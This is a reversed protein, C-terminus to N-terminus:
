DEERYGWLEFHVIHNTENYSSDFQLYVFKGNAVAVGSNISAATDESAVGASTALDDMEAANAVSVYDDAYKLHLQSAAFETSPNAEFSLKWEVIKIGHPMDDGVTFLPVRYQDHNCVDEPDFFKSIHVLMSLCYEDQVEGATGGHGCIVDEDSKQHVEGETLTANGTSTYPIEISSIRMTIPDSYGLNYNCYWRDVYYVFILLVEQSSDGTFDVNANGEINSNNSMDITVDGDDMIIGFYDGSSFESHDGNSDSFDDITVTSLGATYYLSKSTVTFDTNSDALTALAPTVGEFLRDVIDSGGFGHSGAHAAATYDVGPQAISYSKTASRKLIGTSSFVQDLGGEMSDSNTGGYAEDVRENRDTDLNRGSKSFFETKDQKKTSDILPACSIFLSLLSVVFITFLIKKM